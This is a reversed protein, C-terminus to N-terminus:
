NADSDSAEPTKQVSDEGEALWPQSIEEVRDKAETAYAIDECIKTFREMEPADNVFSAVVDKTLDVVLVVTTDDVDEKGKKAEPSAGEPGTAAAAIQFANNDREEERRREMEQKALLTAERAVQEAVVRKAKQVVRAAQREYIDAVGEQWYPVKHEELQSLDVRMVEDDM